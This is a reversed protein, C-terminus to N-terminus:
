ECILTTFWSTTEVVPLADFGAGPVVVGVPTPMTRFPRGEHPAVRWGCRELLGQLKSQSYAGPLGLRAAAEQNERDDEPFFACMAYLRGECVRRLERVTREPGPINQLGLCTTLAPISSDPFPLATADCPTLTLRGSETENPFRAGLHEKLVTPSLDTATIPARAGELLKEVLMGRGSAIDVIPGPCSKLEGAIFDLQAGFERIYEESYCKRWAARFMEAAELYMGRQQCLASKCALDAGNLSDNDAEELARAAEPHELFFLALGSKNEDWSDNKENGCM